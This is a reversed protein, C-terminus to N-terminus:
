QLGWQVFSETCQWFTAPCCYMQSTGKSVVCVKPLFVKVSITFMLCSTNDPLQTEEMPIYLFVAEKFMDARLRKRTVLEARDATVQAVNQVLQVEERYAKSMSAKPWTCKLLEFLLIHELCHLSSWSKKLLIQYLLFSGKQKFHAMICICVSQQAFHMNSKEGEAKEWKSLTWVYCLYSRDLCEFHVKLLLSIKQRTTSLWGGNIWWM